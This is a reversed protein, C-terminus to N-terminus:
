NIHPININTKKNILWKITSNNIVMNKSTNYFKKNSIIARINYLFKLLVFKQTPKEITWKNGVLNLRTNKFDYEFTM